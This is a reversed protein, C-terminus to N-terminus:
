VGKRRLRRGVVWVVFMPWLGHAGTADTSISCGSSSSAVVGPNRPPDEEIPASPAGCPGGDCAKPGCLSGAEASADSECLAQIIPAVNHVIEGADSDDFVNTRACSEGSEFVYDPVRGQILIGALRNDEDFTAAGSHGEFADLNAVYYDLQETRADAIRAGSDIKTPLGSGSGIMTLPAGEELPTIPRVSIPEHGGSVPRDLEIIAFDPTLERNLPAEDLVVRSCTYVDDEEIPALRNPGDLHYDFVYNFVTCPRSPGVCHGATLVLEDTILVGSCSAAVPQFAFPEDECLERQDKLSSALLGYGGEELPVIRSAPILSVISERAIRQLDADPYDYVEVRDDTGYVVNAELEGVFLQETSGCSVTSGLGLVLLLRVLM